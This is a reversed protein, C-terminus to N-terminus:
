KFATMNCCTINKNQNKHKKKETLVDSCLGEKRSSKKV